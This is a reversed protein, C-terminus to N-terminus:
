YDAVSGTQRLNELQKVHLPYQDKDFHACSCYAYSGLELILGEVASDLAVAINYQLM